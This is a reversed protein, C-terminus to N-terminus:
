NNRRRQSWAAPAASAVRLAREIPQTAHEDADSVKTHQCRPTAGVIERRTARDQATAGGGTVAGDTPAVSVREHGHGRETKIGVFGGEWVGDADGAGRDSGRCRTTRGRM